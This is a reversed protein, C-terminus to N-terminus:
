STRIGWLREEKFADSNRALPYMELTSNRSVNLISMPELESLQLLKAANYDLLGAKELM